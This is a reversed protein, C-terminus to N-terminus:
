SWGARARPHSAEGRTARGVLQQLAAASWAMDEVFLDRVMFLGVGEGAMDKTCVLIRAPPSEESPPTADRNFAGLM